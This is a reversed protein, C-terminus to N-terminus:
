RGNRGALVTSPPIQTKTTFLQFNCKAACNHTSPPPLLRTHTGGAPVATINATRWSGWQSFLGASKPKNM